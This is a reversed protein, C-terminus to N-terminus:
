ADAGSKSMAEVYKEWGNRHIYRCAGMVAGHMAGSCGPEVAILAKDMAKENWAPHAELTALGAYLMTRCADEYGGGFGSIEGMGHPWPYKQRVGSREIAALADEQKRKEEARAREADALAKQGEPTAEWERRKRESDARKRDMEAHYRAVLVGASDGPKAEVRVENFVAFAPAERALRECAKTIEDGAFVKIEKM